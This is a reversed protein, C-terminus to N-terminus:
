QGGQSAKFPYRKDESASGNHERIRTVIALIKFKNGPAPGGEFAVFFHSPVPEPLNTFRYSTVWANLKDKVPLKLKVKGTFGAPLDWHTGILMGKHTTVVGQQLDLFTHIGPDNPDLVAPELPPLAPKTATVNVATKKENPTGDTGD